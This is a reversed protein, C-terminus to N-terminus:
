SVFAPLAASAPKPPQATKSDRPPKAAELAEGAKVKEMPCQGKKAELFQQALNMLKQDPVSTCIPDHSTEDPFVLEGLSDATETDSCDEEWEEWDEGDEEGWTGSGPTFEQANTSKIHFFSHKQVCIYVEFFYRHVYIYIYIFYAHVHLHVFTHM